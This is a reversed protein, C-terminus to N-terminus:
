ALVELAAKLVRQPKPDPGTQQSGALFTKGAEWDAPDTASRESAPSM